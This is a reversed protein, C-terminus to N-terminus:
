TSYQLVVAPSENTKQDILSVGLRICYELAEEINAKEFPMEVTLMRSVHSHYMAWDDVFPGNFKPVMNVSAYGDVFEYNLTEDDFDDFGSYLPLNLSKIKHQLGTLMEENMRESDYIYFANNENDQHFTLAVAHSAASLIQKNAVVEPDFNAGWFVRNLDHGLSNERTKQLVASPSVEPVFLFSPLEDYLREVVRKLPEIVHFEDGHTGSHIVLEPTHGKQHYKVGGIEQYKM